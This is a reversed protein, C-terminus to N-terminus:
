SAVKSLPTLIESPSDSASSSESFGPRSPLTKSQYLVQLSNPPTKGKIRYLRQLSDSGNQGSKSSGATTRAVAGIALTKSCSNTALQDADEVANAKDMADRNLQMHTVGYLACHRPRFKRTRVILKTAILKETAVSVTTWSGLHFEKVVSRCLKATGNSWPQSQACVALWVRLEGASLVSAAHKLRDVPISAFKGPPLKYGRKRPRSVTAPRESLSCTETVHCTSVSAQERDM